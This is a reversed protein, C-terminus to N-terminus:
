PIDTRYVSPKPDHTPHLAGMLLIAAAIWGMACFWNFKYPM